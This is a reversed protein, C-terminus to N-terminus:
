WLATAFYMTSTAVRHVPVNRGHTEPVLAAVTQGLVGVGFVVAYALPLSLTPIFWAYTFGSLLALFIIMVVGYYWSSSPKRAANQSFTQSMDPPWKWGMFIIATAFFAFSLLGLSKV